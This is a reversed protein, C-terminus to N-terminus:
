SLSLNGFIILDMNSYGSMTLIHVMKRSVREIMSICNNIYVDTMSKIDIIKGSVDVWRAYDM